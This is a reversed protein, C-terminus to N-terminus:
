YAVICHQLAKLPVRNSGAGLLVRAGGYRPLASDMSYLAVSLQKSTADRRVCRARTSSGCATMYTYLDDQLCM